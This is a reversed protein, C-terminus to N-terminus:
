SVFPRPSFGGAGGESAGDPLIRDLAEAIRDAVEYASSDGDGLREHHRQELERLPGRTPSDDLRIPLVFGHDLELDREHALAWAVEKAVWKSGVSHRSLLM